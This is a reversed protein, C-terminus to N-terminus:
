AEIMCGTNAELCEWGFYIQNLSLKILLNLWLLKTKLRWNWFAVVVMPWLNGCNMGKWLISAKIKLIAGFLNKSSNRLKMVAHHLCCQARCPTFPPNLCPCVQCSYHARRNVCLSKWSALKQHVRKLIYHYLEQPLEEMSWQFEWTDESHTPVHLVWSSVHIIQWVLTLM